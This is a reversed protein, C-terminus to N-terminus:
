ERAYEIGFAKLYKIKTIGLTIMKFDDEVSVSGRGSTQKDDTDFYAPAFLNRGIAELESIEKGEHLLQLRTVSESNLIKGDLLIVNTKDSQILTTSNELRTKGKMENAQFDKNDTLKQVKKTYDHNLYLNNIKVRKQLVKKGGSTRSKSEDTVYEVAVITSKTCDKLLNVIIEDTLLIKETVVNNQINAQTNM